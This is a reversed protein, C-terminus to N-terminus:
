ALAYAGYGFILAPIASYLTAYIAAKPAMAISPFLADGDNSIANALLASFPAIGQIYLTTMIIQPGCGPIFGILIAFLPSLVGLTKFISGLDLGTFYMLLEFCLFGAIVWIGVFCTELAVSEWQNSKKNAINNKLNCGKENICHTSWSNLPRLLWIVVSLVAGICGIWVTPQYHALPGFFSDVNILFAQLLGIVCGPILLWLWPMLLKPPLPNHNQSEQPAEITQPSKLFDKGHISNVLYGFIIAAFASCAFVVAASLPARALLLFSADGMTAILVAVFAGFSVQGRVFQTVVIIAGGCGPLIGLLTAIPVQKLQDENLKKILDANLHTYALYVLSLTLAVFIIVAFYADSLTHTILEFLDRDLQFILTMAVFFSFMILTPKIPLANPLSDKLATSVLSNM